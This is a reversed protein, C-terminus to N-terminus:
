AETSLTTKNTRTTDRRVARKSIRTQRRLATRDRKLSLDTQLPLSRPQSCARRDSRVGAVNPLELRSHHTEVAPGVPFSHSEKFRLYSSLVSEYMGHCLM